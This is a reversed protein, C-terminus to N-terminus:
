LVLWIELHCYFYQIIQVTSEYDTNMLLMM